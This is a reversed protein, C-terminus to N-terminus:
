MSAIMRWARLLVRVYHGAEAPGGNRGYHGAKAPGGDIMTARADVAYPL